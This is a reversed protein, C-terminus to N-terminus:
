FNSEITNIIAKIADVIFRNHVTLDCQKEYKLKIVNTVDRLTKMSKIPLNFMENIILLTALINAEKYHIVAQKISFLCADQYKNVYLTLKLIKDALYPFKIKLIDMSHKNVNDNIEKSINDIATNLIITLYMAHMEPDSYTSEVTEFYKEIVLAFIEFNNKYSIIVDESYKNFSIMVTSLFKPLITNLLNSDKNDYQIKNFNLLAIIAKFADELFIIGVSSIVTKLYLIIIRSCIKTSLQCENIMSNCVNIVIKLIIIPFKHTKRKEMTPMQSIVKEEIWLLINQFCESIDYVDIKSLIFIMSLYDNFLDIFVNEDMLNYLKDSCKLRSEVHRLIVRLDNWINVLDEYYTTLLEEQFDINLLQKLIKISLTITQEQEKIVNNNEQEDTTANTCKTIFEKLLTFIMDVKNWKMLTYLITVLMDDSINPNSLQKAVTKCIDNPNNMTTVPVFSLLFLISENCTSKQVVYSCVIQPLINTLVRQLDKGEEKEFYEETFNKKNAYLIISIVELLIKISESADVEDNIIDEISKDNRSKHNNRKFRKNPKTNPQEDNDNLLSNIQKEIKMLIINILKCADNWLIIHKSYFLFKRTATINKAGIYIIEKVVNENNLNHLKIWLCLLKILQQLMKQENTDEICKLLKNIDIIDSVLIGINNELYVLLKNFCKIVNTGAYYINNAFNSLLSQLSTHSHKNSVMQKIGKLINLKIESSSKNLMHYSLIDLWHKTINPPIQKWNNELIKCTINITILCVQLDTDKLLYSIAKSYHQFININNKCRIPQVSFIIFLVEATNCRVCSGSAKLHTWLLSNYQDHLMNKIMNSKSSHLAELFVLLNTGLKDRGIFDRRSRLCHFIINKLCKDIIVKKNKNTAGLWADAYLNAYEKIVESEANELVAKVNNHIGTIFEEGLTFLKLLIAKGEQMSIINTNKSLEVLIQIDKNHKILSLASRIKYLRKVHQSSIKSKIILHKIVNIIVKEKWIMNSKWWSELLHSIEDKVKTNNIEPLIVSHLILVIELLVNPFFTKQLLTELAMATIIRILNLAEQKDKSHANDSQLIFKKQIKLLIVKVHYWLECLEEETLITINKINFKMKDCLASADCGRTKLIRFLIKERMIIHQCSMKKHIVFSM